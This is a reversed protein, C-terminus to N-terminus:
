GLEVGAVRIMAVAWMAAGAAISLTLATRRLIDARHRIMAQMTM